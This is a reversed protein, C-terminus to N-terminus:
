YLLDNLPVDTGANKEATREVEELPIRNQYAAQLDQLCFTSRNFRARRLALRARVMYRYKNM